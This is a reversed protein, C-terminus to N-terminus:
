VLIQMKHSNENRQLIWIVGNYWLHQISILLCWCFLKQWVLCIETMLSTSLTQTFGNCFYFNTIFIKKRIIRFLTGSIQSLHYRSIYFSVVTEKLTKREVLKLDFIMNKGKQKRGSLKLYKAERRKHNEGGLMKLNYIAPKCLFVEWM